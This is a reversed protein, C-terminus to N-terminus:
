FLRLQQPNDKRFLSLNYKFQSKPFYRKKHLLFMQRIIDARQGSGKIREGWRSDNLKGEHCEAIASLIKQKREPFQIELWDSFISAIQGNLRVVTYGADIAGREAVAKLIAPIEHDNLGPIVPANMVSVPIGAKSLKQVVKLRGKATVTKPEMKRRVEENLTNISLNVKVLGKEALASLLDIDRLVLANKTIIGVPHQYKLFVELMKRTIKLKQEIPQYCDTNGSLIIPAVQWGPKILQKELLEAANKKVLIKTEFDKGASYGWYEHANRAYCYTCGHICGQYPNASWSMGIDPSSVKNIITKPFVEIYQVATEFGDEKFEYSDYYDPEVHYAYKFYRNAPNLQAGKHKDIPKDTQMQSIFILM